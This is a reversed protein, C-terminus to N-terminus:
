QPKHGHFAQSVLACNRLYALYEATQRTKEEASWGLTEAMYRAVIPVAQGCANWDVIELRIRRAMFDRLHVAMEHEAAYAIEACLYPLGPLIRAKLHPATETLKVVYVAQSGYSACLHQCVDDDCGTQEKLAACAQADSPEAGLLRYPETVCRRDSGLLECIKDVADSAMIRYSTWKGGLLSVLGSVADHEVAHDRLMAGTSKGQGEAAMLLPRLGGFGAKIDGLGVPKALFPPLAGLLFVADKTQLAPEKQLDQYPEDTTGVLTKGEFPIAFVMRGDSTKPVLLASNGGLVTGDLVLHAGKSPKIRPPLSPNAMQRLRDAFPGTCNLFLKAKVEFTHAPGESRDRVEVATLKGSVDSKFRLAEVYNAVAAGEQAASQVLALAYRADDMQGDYYLVASHIDPSLGPALALAEKKSLWRSPPLGSNGAFGDYLRLGVTYYLGEWWSFVPTLIGLPKALHPANALVTRRERLGHKVQKL